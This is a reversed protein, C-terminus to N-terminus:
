STKLRNYIKKFQLPLGVINIAAFVAVLAPIANFALAVTTILGTFGGDWKALRAIAPPLGKTTSRLNDLSKEEAIAFKDLYAAVFMAVAMALVLYFGIMSGGRLYFGVSLGLLVGIDVIRDFFPDLFAGLASKQNTLSALQGDACDLIKGFHFPLLGWLAITMNNAAFMGAAIMSFVFSWVTVQNPTMHLKAAIVALRISIKRYIYINIYGEHSCSKWYVERLREKSFKM